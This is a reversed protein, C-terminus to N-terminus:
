SERSYKRKINEGHQKLSKALYLGLALIRCTMTIGDQEMGCRSIGCLVHIPLMSLGYVMIRFSFTQVQNLVLNIKLRVVVSIGTIVGPAALGIDMKIFKNSSISRSIDKLHALPYGQFTIPDYSLPVTFQGLNTKDLRPLQISIKLVVVPYADTNSSSSLLAACFETNTCLIEV